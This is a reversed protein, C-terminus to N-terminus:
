ALNLAGVTYIEKGETNKDLDKYTACELWTVCNKEITDEGEKKVTKSYDVSWNSGQGLM